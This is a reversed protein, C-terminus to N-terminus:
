PGLLEIKTRKIKPYCIDGIFYYNEVLEKIKKNLEENFNSSYKLYFEKQTIDCDHDEDYRMIEIKYFVPKDLFYKNKQYLLYDQFKASYSDLLNLCEEIITEKNDLCIRNMGHKNLRDQLEQKQKETM